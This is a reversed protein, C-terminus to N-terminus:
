RRRRYNNTFFLSDALTYVLYLGTIVIVAGALKKIISASDPILDELKQDINDGLNQNPRTDQIGAFGDTPDSVVPIVTKKEDKGKFTLSIIDFDLYVTQESVLFKGDLGSASMDNCYYDDSWAYRLIYTSTNKDTSNIYDVLNVFDNSSICLKHVTYQMYSDQTNNIEPNKNM